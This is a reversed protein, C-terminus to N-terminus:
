GRRIGAWRAGTGNGHAGDNIMVRVQLGIRYTFFIPFLLFEVLKCRRTPMLGLECPASSRRPSEMFRVRRM